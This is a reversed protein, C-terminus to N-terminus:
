AAGRTREPLTIEFGRANRTVLSWAERTRAQWARVTREPCKCRSGGYGRPSTPAVGVLWAPKVPMRALTAGLQKLALLSFEPLQDLLLVGGVALHAEGPRWVKRTKGTPRLRADYVQSTYATGVLGATSCTHHPARFPAGASLAADLAQGTALSGCLAQALRETAGAEPLTDRLRRAFLISGAGPNAHILLTHM